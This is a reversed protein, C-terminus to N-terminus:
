PPTLRADSAAREGLSQFFRMVYGDPDTLVFQLHGSELKGRRYWREELKLLLTTGTALVRTYLTPVDDVEIQLHLGRGFPYEPEAAVFRRAPDCTQEIMLEAGDLELYAFREEPREYRVAFGLVQTYFAMSLILDSVSLEPVIRPAPM